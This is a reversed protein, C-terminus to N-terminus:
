PAPAAADAASMLAALPGVPRDVLQEEGVFLRQAVLHGIAAAVIAFLVGEMLRSTLSRVPRPESYLVPAKVKPLPKPAHM